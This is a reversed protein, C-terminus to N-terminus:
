TATAALQAVSIAHSAGPIEVVSQADARDAMFRQVQPPINRDEDGILFWSPVDKWLPRAGSPEQYGELTVPRQTVAMLAGQSAPVEAVFQEHFREKTIYLDTTGDKRPAPRM